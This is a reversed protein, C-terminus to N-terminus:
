RVKGGAYVVREVAYLVCSGVGDLRIRYYNKHIFRVPVRWVRVKDGNGTIQAHRYETDDAATTVDMTGRLLARIYIENIGKDETTDEFLNMTEFRWRGSEGGYETLTGDSLAFGLGGCKVCSIVDAEPASMSVWAGLSTDYVLIERAGDERECDAIYKTGKGLAAASKYSKALKRSIKQPVGGSYSYFGDESLFILVGGVECISRYDICGAGKIERSLSIESAASGYYIGLRDRKFAILAGSYECLGTFEGDSQTEIYGSDTSVGQYSTFSTYKGLESFMLMAGDEVTGFVRNQYMATHNLRTSETMIGFEVEIATYSHGSRDPGNTKQDCDFDAGDKGKEYGYGMKTGDADVLGYVPEDGGFFDYRQKEENWKEFHGIIGSFDNVGGTKTNDEFTHHGSYIGREEDISHYKKETNDSVAYPRCPYNVYKDEGSISYSASENELLASYARAGASDVVFRIPNESMFDDFCYRDTNWFCGDPLKPKIYLTVGYYGAYDTYKEYGKLVLKSKVRAESTGESGLSSIDSPFLMYYSKGTIKEYIRLASDYTPACLKYMYAKQYTNEAPIINKIMDSQLLGDNKRATEGGISTGRTNYTWISSHGNEGTALIIYRTGSKKIEIRDTPKIHFNDDPRDAYGIKAGAYYFDGDYVGTLYVRGDKRVAEFACQLKGAELREAGASTKIYLTGAEKMHATRAAPYDDLTFNIFEGEGGSGTPLRNIGKFESIAASPNARAETKPFTM